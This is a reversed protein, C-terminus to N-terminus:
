IINTGDDSLEKINLHHPSHYESHLHTGDCVLDWVSDEWVITGIDTYALEFQFKNCYPLKGERPEYNDCWWCRVHQQNTLAEEKSM